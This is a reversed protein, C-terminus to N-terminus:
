IEPNTFKDIFRPESGYVLQDLADSIEIETRTYPTTVGGDIHIESTNSSVEPLDSSTSM